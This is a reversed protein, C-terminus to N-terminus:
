AEKNAFKSGKRLKHGNKCFYFPFPVLAVCLLACLMLAYQTGLTEFMQSTFLPFVAAFTSRMASNAAMASAAVPRYADVLFTFVAAFSWMVGIGFPITAILSVIWHVSTYTTFAFWFLAIPCLVVGYLGKRLHEEPPPRKGLQKAKRIYHRNWIPHSLAGILIGLGLPIYTLGVIQTSFGYAHYVISWATFSMYLIGLLVATWTCLFLAMPELALIQFPKVCSIGIVRAVSRTDLELPARVDTRGEKRLRKAKRKLLVPLFTEPVFVMLLVFEVGAWIILVYWTWRWDLHQNIFGSIIPGVVPGLFPGATYFGMPASVENPAFLDAVSGGVVSLFASGCCGAFFRGLLLAAANNSFAVLFQFITFLGFGIVYCPSRGYWESLPGVLLPFLGMGLVFLSLGLTAVEHSIGFEAQVGPYTFAVMSSCSTICFSCSTMIIVMLWRRSKSMNIPSLPDDPGTLRVVPVGDELSVGDQDRESSQATLDSRKSDDVSSVREAKQVDPPCSGPEGDLGHSHVRDLM